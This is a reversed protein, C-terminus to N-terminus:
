SEPPSSPQRAVPQWIAADAGSLYAVAGALVGLQGAVFYTALRAFRGGRNGAGLAAAAYFGCQSVVAARALWAGDRRALVITGALVLILLVPSLLRLFKHSVLAVLVGPRRWPWQRPACLLQFRGAAIRRRRILEGARTAAPGEVSVAEPVFVVRAGARLVRLCLYSDDVLVHGPMEEFLARRVALIEGVVAVTSGLCTEAWRLRSEYDWYTREGEGIANSRATVTKFGSALGVRADAFPGMLQRLADRRYLANADSFVLLDETTARVGHNLAGAKGGRVPDDLVRVRGGGCERAIRATEDTSGDCVVVITLREAPYDLALTNRIKEAMVLAENFAAIVLAVPPTAPVPRVSTGLGRALMLVLVPYGLYVYGLVALSGVVVASALDM